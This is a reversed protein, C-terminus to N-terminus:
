WGAPLRDGLSWRAVLSENRAAVRGLRRYARLWHGRFRKCKRMAWKVLASSLFRGVVHLRRSRYFRGHYQIWGRVTAQEETVGWSLDVECWTVGRSECLRRLQPPTCKVLFDRDAKM